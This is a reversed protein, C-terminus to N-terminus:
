NMSTRATQDRHLNLSIKKTIIIVWLVTSLFDPASSFITLFVSGPIFFSSFNKLDPLFSIYVWRNDKKKYLNRRRAKSLVGSGSFIGDKGGKSVSM